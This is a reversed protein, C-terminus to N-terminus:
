FSLFKREALTTARFGSSKPSNDTLSLPRKTLCYHITDSGAEMGPPCNQLERARYACFDSRYGIRSSFDLSGTGKGRGDALFRQFEVVAFMVLGVDVIEVTEDFARHVFGLGQTFDDLRTLARDEIISSLGVVVSEVPLAQGGIAAALRGTRQQFGNDLLPTRELAEHRVERGLCGVVETGTPRPEHLAKVTLKFDIRSGVGARRQRFMQLGQHNDVNPFVGVVDIIAVSAGAVDLSEKVLEDIPVEHLTAEVTFRAVAVAAPFFAAAASGATAAGLFAYVIRVRM